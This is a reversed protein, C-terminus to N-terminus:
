EKEPGDDERRPLGSAAAVKALRAELERAKLVAEIGTAILPAFCPETARLAEETRDLAPHDAADEGEAAWRHLISFTDRIWPALGPAEITADVAHHRLETSLFGNIAKGAEAAPAAWRLRFTGAIRDAAPRWDALLADYGTVVRQGGRSFREADLVHRLWVLMGLAPLMGDRAELSAAVELPSRLPIVPLPEVGADTLVEQWFPYLRCIRPDKLVFLVSDGFEDALTAKAEARLEAAQPSAFFHPDIARWDYWASGAARLIRDNLECVARSEWHGAENGPAAGILTKPLGAGLLSLVRTLASTGSRHMGILVFARRSVQRVM